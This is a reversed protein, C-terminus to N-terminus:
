SLIKMCAAGAAFLAAGAMMGGLALAWPPLRVGQRERGHDGLMRDIRALEAQWDADTM